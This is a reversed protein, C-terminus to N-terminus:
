LKYLMGREAIEKKPTRYMNYYINYIFLFTPTGSFSREPPVLCVVVQRGSLYHINQSANVHLDTYATSNVYFM